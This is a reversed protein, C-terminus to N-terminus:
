NYGENQTLNENIILQDSPIPYLKSEPKWSPKIAGLIDDARTGGAAGTISPTRKLDFWRNGWEAFLEVKREQEIALLIEPKTLDSSLAPLGARSRIVNIDSVADALKDQQARTEARILYQEALRFVVNFENGTGSANKYKNVYYYPTGGIDETSTWQLKRADDPEFSQYLENYLVYSPLVGPPALFNAGFVSVGTPTAMQWIVENSSNVFVNDLNTELSYLGSSIVHSSQIEANQWDKTYLDAKALLAMATYRNIRARKETPYTEPLLTVADALDTKVQMWVSDAATRGMAGNVETNTTLILPVDGYMNVLYFYIFARWTKAEGLLQDKVSPTLATTANLQEIASNVERIQSYSSGWLTNANIYNGPQLADETFESYAPDAVSYKIDDASSGLAGTYLMSLGNVFSNSYLGVIASTATIDNKFAEKVGIQTAPAGIDVFKKCSSLSFFITILGTIVITHPISNKFSM